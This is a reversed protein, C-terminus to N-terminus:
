VWVACPPSDILSDQKTNPDPNEPNADKRSNSLVIFWFQYKVTRYSQINDRCTVRGLHFLAILKIDVAIFLESDVVEAEGRRHCGARSRAMAEDRKATGPRKCQSFLIGRIMKLSNVKADSLHVGGSEMPGHGPLSGLVRTGHSTPAGSQCPAFSWM